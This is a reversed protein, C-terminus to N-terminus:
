ENVIVIKGDVVVIPVEDVGDVYESLETGVYIRRRDDVSGMTMAEIHEDNIKVYQEDVPDTEPDTNLEM